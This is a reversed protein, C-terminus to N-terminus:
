TNNLITKNKNKIDKLFDEFYEKVMYALYISCLIFNTAILIKCFM